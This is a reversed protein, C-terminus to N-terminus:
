KGLEAAAQRRLHEAFRRALTERMSETSLHNMNRLEVPLLVDKVAESILPVESDLLAGFKRQSAALLAETQSERSKSLAESKELRDAMQELQFGWATLKDQRALFEAETGVYDTKLKSLRVKADRRRQKLNLLIEKRVWWNDIYDSAIRGLILPLRTIAAVIPSLLHFTLTLVIPEWFMPWWGSYSEVAYEMRADIPWDGLFISAAFRWNVISWALTFPGFFPGKLRDSLHELATRGNGQSDPSGAASKQPEELSTKPPM